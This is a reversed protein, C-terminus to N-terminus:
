YCVYSTNSINSSTSKLSPLKLKIVVYLHIPFIKYMYHGIGMEGNLLLMLHISIGNHKRQSDSYFVNLLLM